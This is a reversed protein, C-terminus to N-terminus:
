NPCNNAWSSSVSGLHVERTDESYETGHEVRCQHENPFHANILTIIPLYSSLFIFPGDLPDQPTQFSVTWSSEISEVLQGPGQSGRLWQLLSSCPWLSSVTLWTWKGVGDQDGWSRVQEGTEWRWSPEEGSEQCRIGSVWYVKASGERIM